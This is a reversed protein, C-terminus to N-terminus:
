YYSLYIVVASVYVFGSLLVIWAWINHQLLKLWLIIGTISFLILSIGVVDLLAAYLNYQWGGGYGRARHLGTMKGSFNMESKEIRMEQKSASITIKHTTTATEYIWMREGSKLTSERTLRGKIRHKSLFSDWNAEDIDKPSIKEYRVPETVEEVHFTDHHIFMYSTVIYMVLMTATMLSSYLHIERTIIYLRKSIKM